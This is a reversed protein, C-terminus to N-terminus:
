MGIKWIQECVKRMKHVRETHNKDYFVADQSAEKMKFYFEWFIQWDQYKESFVSLLDKVQNGYRSFHEYTNVKRIWYERRKERWIQLILMLVLIIYPSIILFLNYGHDM